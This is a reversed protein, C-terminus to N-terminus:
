ARGGFERILEELLLKREGYPGCTACNPSAWFNGHAARCHREQEFGMVKLRYHLRRRVNEFKRDRERPM